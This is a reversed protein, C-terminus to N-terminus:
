LPEDVSVAAGDANALLRAQRGPWWFLEVGLAAVYIVSAVANGWSGFVADWVAMGVAAVLVFVLLWRWPRASEAAARLGRSYEIVPQALRADEVRRGLRATRVVSVRDDGSLKASGPWYRAMRRSMWVGSFVAVVVAAIAGAVLMGSDLWAMAGLAPGVCGGVLAARRVPGGRWVVAPVTVM